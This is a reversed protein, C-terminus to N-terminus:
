AFNDDFGAINELLLERYKLAQPYLPHDSALSNVDVYSGLKDTWRIEKM